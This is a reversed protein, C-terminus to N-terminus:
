ATGAATVPQTARRSPRGPRRETGRRQQPAPGAAVAPHYEAHGCGYTTKAGIGCFPTLLALADLVRRNRDDTGVCRIEAEGTFGAYRRRDIWADSSAIGFAGLRLDCAQFDIAPVLEPPAFAAWRDRLHGFINGPIPLSTTDETRSYFFATSHFTFRFSDRPESRDLLATWAVPEVCVGSLGASLRYMDPGLRVGDGEARSVHELLPFILDDVLLGVSLEYANTATRRLGLSYPKRSSRHEEGSWGHELWGSILGHLQSATASRTTPAELQITVLVPM